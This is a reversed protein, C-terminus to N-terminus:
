QDIPRGSVVDSFCRPQRGLQESSWCRSDLLFFFLAGRQGVSHCVRDKQVLSQPIAWRDDHVSFLCMHDSPARLSFSRRVSIPDQSPLEVRAYLSLLMLCSASASAFLSLFVFFFTLSLGRTTRKERLLVNFM